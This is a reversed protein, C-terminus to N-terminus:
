ANPSQAQLSDLLHSIGDELLDMVLEFGESGSYYPDPIYDYGRDRKTYDIMRVVKDVAEQTPAMRILYDYNRDDMAVIVDFEDFDTYEVPRAVSDLRYGRRAAHKRMRPDAPSGQTHNGTAASDVDVYEELGRERIMHQAIGEAAASRCINGLCVFLIRKKRM